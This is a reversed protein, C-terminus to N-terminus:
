LSISIARLIKDKVDEFFGFIMCGSALVHGGGGFTAAIENVNVRGKSRLSIKYCNQKNELISVAVEVGDVSLPYDIFGETEDSTAGHKEIDSKMVAILAIKGEEYFKMKSMIDAQLLARSISQSKFMKVGIEHADAGAEILKSAIAFTKATANSHMFHGTDTSIGLLLCDAVYKSIEGGLYLLLEYIIECSAARDEVYNYKAYRTNSVHHDINFTETKKSFLAYNDGIMGETSCDVAVFADFPDDLTKVSAIEDKFGLFSFKEPIPSDCIVEAIKGSNEFAKKLAYASGLTDGDPRTHCFILISKCAKLKDAIDKLIM